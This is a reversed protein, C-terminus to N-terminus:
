GRVADTRMSTSTRIVWQALGRLFSAIGVGALIIHCEGKRDGNVGFSLFGLWVASGKNNDLM